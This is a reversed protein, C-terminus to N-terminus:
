YGLSIDRGKWQIKKKIKQILNVILIHGMALVLLPHLFLNTIVSQGAAISTSLRNIIIFCGLLASQWLNLFPLIAIPGIGLLIFYILAVIRSGGFFEHINKSFGKVAEIYSGYMRCRVLNHSVYVAMKYNRSKILRAIKIDEVVEDKVLKHWQNERYAKADFLMVQGNAAALSKTKFWYVMKLPLLSLLIWHMVPVTILEGLSKMEQFPFVSVMVLQDERLARSIVAPLEPAITVDADLFLMLDSECKQALQFCAFTKGNWGSPLNAGKIMTIQSSKEMSKEIISATSDTSHDDCFIVQRINTLSSQLSQLLPKIRSEENRVPVLIDPLLEKNSGQKERFLDAREIWPMTILNFISVMTIVLQAGIFIYFLIMM